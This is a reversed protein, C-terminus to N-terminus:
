PSCTTTKPSSPAPPRRAPRGSRTSQPSCPIIKRGNIGGKADLQNILTTYAVHYNGPDVNIIGKLAAIDPYTIGVKITTPTVGQASPAAGANGALLLTSSGAALTV